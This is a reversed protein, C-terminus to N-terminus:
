SKGTTLLFSGAILCSTPNDGNYNPYDYYKDPSIIM